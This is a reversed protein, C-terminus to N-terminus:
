FYTKNHKSVNVHTLGRVSYVNDSIYHFNLSGFEQYLIKRTVLNEGEMGSSNFQIHKVNM